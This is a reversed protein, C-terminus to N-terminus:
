WNHLGGGNWGGIIIFIYSELFWVSDVVNPHDIANVGALM